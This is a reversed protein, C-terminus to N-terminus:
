QMFFVMEAHMKVGIWKEARKGLKRAHELDDVGREVVEGELRLGVKGAAELIEEIQHNFSMGQIKVEKGGESGVFGARSVAGQEPHMNTLYVWGGKRLVGAVALFFRDLCLHELVLTSVVADVEEVPLVAAVDNVDHLIWAVTSSTDKRATAIREQAKQMMGQSVDVAIIESDAPLAHFLKITNRGTGCGLDLIRRPPHASLLSPVTAAFALDDHLQLINGDHDYVQPTTLHLLSQITPSPKRGGM